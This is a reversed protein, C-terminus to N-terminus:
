VERDAGILRTALFDLAKDADVNMAVHVVSGQLEDIFLAGAEEDADVGVRLRLTECQFFDPRLAFLMVCPDHLPRSERTSASAFYAEILEGVKTAFPKDSAALKAM